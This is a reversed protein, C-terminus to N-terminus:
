FSINLIASILLVRIPFGMSVIHQLFIPGSSLAAKKEPADTFMHSKSAKPVNHFM